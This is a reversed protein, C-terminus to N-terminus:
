LDIDTTGGETIGNEVSNKIWLIIDLLANVFTRVTYISIPYNYFESNKPAKHQVALSQTTYIVYTMFSIHLPALKRKKILDILEKGRSTKGRGFLMPDTGLCERCFINLLSEELRRIFALRELLIERKPSIKPALLSLLFIRDEEDLYQDAFEFVEPHQQKIKTSELNEIQQHLYEFMSAMQNDDVATKKKDFIPSRNRLSPELQVYWATHVCFPLTRQYLLEIERLKLIAEHVFNEAETGKLQDPTMPAKGDLIVAQYKQNAMLKQFGDKFNTATDIIVQYRRARNKISSSLGEDDDIMLVHIPKRRKKTKSM